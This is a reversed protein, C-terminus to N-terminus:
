IPKRDADGDHVTRPHEPALRELVFFGGSLAHIRLGLPQLRRGLRSLSATLSAASQGGGVAIYARGLASRPIPTGLGTLLLTLLVRQRDTVRARRDGVCVVGDPGVTAPMGTAEYRRALVDSRARVEDPELPERVWDELPDWASPPALQPPLVLLRPRGAAALRRRQSERRPWPVLAVVPDLAWSEQLARLRPETAEM